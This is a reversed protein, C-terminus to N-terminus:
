QGSDESEKPEEPITDGGAMTDRVAQIAEDLSLKLFPSNDADLGDEDVGRVYAHLQRDKWLTMLEKWEPDQCYQDIDWGKSLVDASSSLVQTVIPTSVILDLQSGEPLARALLCIMRGTAGPANWGYSVM